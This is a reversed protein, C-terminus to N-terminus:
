MVQLSPIAVAFLGGWSRIYDLQDMIESRLNWPLILVIDPRKELLTNPHTVPIHTGPLFRGQKSPSFDCVYPLLDPKVGAFNLLTNGKAAAGYGVVRKGARKEKILFTLLDDKILEPFRSTPLRNIIRISGM